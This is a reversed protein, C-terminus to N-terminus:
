PAGERRRGWIVFAMAVVGAVPLMADEWVGFLRVASSAVVSWAVPVIFLVWPARPRAWLLLGITFITTSCPLGFTPQAPYAHGQAISLVPYIALAYALLLGGAIGPADRRPEFRLGGSRGVLWALLVGEVVFAAGFLTAAPNIGAFFSWHYAGGMWVWLAGLIAGIARGHWLPRVFALVVAAVALAVLLIQAPWVAENYRVFADFFQDASFPPNV